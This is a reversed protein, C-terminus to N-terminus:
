DPHYIPENCKPKPSFFESLERIMRDIRDIMDVNIAGNLGPYDM